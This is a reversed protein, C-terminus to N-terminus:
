KVEGEMKAGCCPCFRMNNEEPTGAELYWEEGCATCKYVNADDDVCEWKPRKVSTLRRRDVPEIEKLFDAFSEGCSCGDRGCNPCSGGVGMVEDGDKCWLEPLLELLM